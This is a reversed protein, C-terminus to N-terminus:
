RDIEGDRRGPIEHIWGNYRYKYSYISKMQVVPYTDMYRHGVSWHQAFLPCGPSSGRFPGSPTRPTDCVSNNRRAPKSMLGSLRHCLGRRTLRQSSSPEVCAIMPQRVFSCSPCPACLQSPDSVHFIHHTDSCTPVQTCGLRLCPMGNTLLFSLGGFVTSIGFMPCM